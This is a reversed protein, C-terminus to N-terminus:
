PSAATVVVHLIDLEYHNVRTPLKHVAILQRQNNHLHLQLNSRLSMFLPQFGRMLTNHATLVLPHDDWAILDVRSLTVALAVRKGDELLTPEAELTMGTNRTEYANPLGLTTSDDIPGPKPTAIVSFTQPEQPPEFESPYRREVITESVARVSDSTRLFPWAVLTAGKTKIMSQLRTWAAEVRIDNDSQLDLLLELAPTQELDVVQMDVCVNWPAHIHAQREREQADIGAREERIKADTAPASSEGAMAALSVASFLGSVIFLIRM